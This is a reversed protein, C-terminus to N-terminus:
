KLMLAICGFQNYPGGGEVGKLPVPKEDVLFNTFDEISNFTRKVITPEGHSNVYEIKVQNDVLAEFTLSYTEPTKTFIAGIKKNYMASLNRLWTCMENLQAKEKGPILEDIGIGKHREMFSGIIEMQNVFDVTQLFIDDFNNEDTDAIGMLRIKEIAKKYDEIGKDVLKDLDNPSNTNEKLMELVSRGSIAACASIGMKRNFQNITGFIISPTERLPPQKIPVPAAAPYRNLNTAAEDETKKIGTTNQSCLYGILKGTYSISTQCGKCIAWLATSVYSPSGPQNAIAALREVQQKPEIESHDLIAQLKEFIKQCKIVQPNQCHYPSSILEFLKPKIEFSFEAIDAELDREGSAQEGTYFRNMAELRDQLDRLFPIKNTSFAAM